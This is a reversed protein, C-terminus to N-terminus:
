ISKGEINQTDILQDDLYTKFYKEWFAMILKKDFRTLELTARKTSQSQKGTLQTGAGAAMRRRDGAGSSVATRTPWAQGPLQLLRAGGEAAGRVPLHEDVGGVGGSVVHSDVGDSATLLWM